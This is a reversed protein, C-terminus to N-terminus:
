PMDLVLDNSYRYITAPRVLAKMIPVGRAFHEALRLPDNFGVAVRMGTSGSLRPNIEFVVPGVGPQIRLQVNVAGMGPIRQGIDEIERLLPKDTVVRGMVTRGDRLVREMALVDQMLCDRDYLFGVTLEPGEIYQQLCYDAIDSRCFDRLELDTRLLCIGRSGHGHRPKAIVPLEIKVGCDALCTHPVPVGRESLYAATALKDDAAEVLDHPALVVHTRSRALVSRSRSLVPIESDIGPLLVEIAREEIAQLLKAVYQEDSVTPLQVFDDCLHRAACDPDADLGLISKEETRESRARLGQITGLGVDGSIGTVAIRLTM